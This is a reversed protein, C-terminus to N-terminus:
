RLNWYDAYQDAQNPSMSKAHPDPNRQSDIM